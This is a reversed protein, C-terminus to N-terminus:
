GQGWEGVGHQSKVRIGDAVPRQCARQNPKGDIEVLCDFCIGMNCFVGRPEGRRSTYRLIRHRAAALAAAISEGEYATITRGDFQFCVQRGRDDEGCRLQDVRAAGDPTQHSNNMGSGM